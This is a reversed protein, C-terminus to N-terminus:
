LRNAFFEITAAKSAVAAKKDAATPGAFGHTADEYKIVEVDTRESRLIGAITEANEFATPGVDKTGHHIQAVPVRGRGGLGNFFPAFYEVLAKPNAAARARLCLYGGLSFGLMGIRTGDVGPVTRGYTVSDVLASTWDDQNEAIEAGAAGGHKTGTRFFYDPMLAFLGRGALDEAYGRMMATWPAKWGETGYAIVVLGTPTTSSPKYLEGPITASGSPINVPIFAM